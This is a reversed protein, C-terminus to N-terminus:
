SQLHLIPAGSFDIELDLIHLLYSVNTTVKVWHKNVPVLMGCISAHPVLLDVNQLSVTANLREMTVGAVREQAEYRANVKELEAWLLAKFGEVILNVSAERTADETSKSGPSASPGKNDQDASTLTMQILPVNPSESDTDMVADQSEPSDKVQDLAPEVDQDTEDVPPDARAPDHDASELSGLPETFSM